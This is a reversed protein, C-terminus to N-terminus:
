RGGELRAWLRRFKEAFEPRASLLGEGRACAEAIRREHPIELLLPIGEEELFHELPSFEVGARNLIVGVPVGLVRVAEVAQRLDHLGFPTPETVLLCYDAGRVATLMPCSTGPPCDVVVRDGPLFRDKLVKILPSAMPEGVELCGYATRVGAGEGVFVRGLPRRGERLAGEPCVELCGYCAHCMEPFILVEGPFVTIAGFRCIEACRGCFGCDRVQEPVMRFVLDERGRPRLFLHANPEEVDADLLFAKASQALAVAVTTKGTGGKGSAVAVIM